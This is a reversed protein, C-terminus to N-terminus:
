PKLSAVPLGGDKWDALGGEYTYVESYGYSQLKEAAQKSAQCQGGGCYVVIVSDKKPALKEAVEKTLTDAPVWKSGPINVDKEHSEKPLTNWLQFAMKHDVKQKLAERDILGYSPKDPVVAGTALDFKQKSEPKPTDM